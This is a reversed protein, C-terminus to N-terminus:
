SLSATSGRPTERIVSRQAHVLAAPKLYSESTVVNGPEHNCGLYSPSHPLFSSLSWVLLATASLRLAEQESHLGTYLFSFYM